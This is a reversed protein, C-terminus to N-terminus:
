APKILSTGITCDLCRRKLCFNNYLEILAQSDFATKVNYGLESWQRTITNKEAPLHQLWDLAREMYRQDDQRIGYAVLLPIATNIILNQISNKGISPVQEAQKGFRYHTQWYASQTVAFRAYLEDYSVTEIISSFISGNKILLAAFQALRVGPFNAPRLRLFRWQSQHLQKSELNYKKGLLAYERMLLGSYEDVNTKDLFGAQGFLLAEVQITNNIHKRIINFPITETLRLFSDANVKFGFNKGLLQYATEEWDSRNKELMSLVVGAKAELRQALTKDLMSLKVIDNVRGWSSACPISDPCTLLKKFKNWLLPDVRNKLELTSMSSGDSRVIPKDNEWVVHLVVKEYAADNDHRHDTWGSAAIHIEVSGRWEISGIRIKADSFDPGAHTNRIGPHLVQVPEGSDTQLEKKDFYQFQWLYHLFSETM